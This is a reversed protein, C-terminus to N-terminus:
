VIDAPSSLSRLVIQKRGESTVIALRDVAGHVQTGSQEAAIPVNIGVRDIGM